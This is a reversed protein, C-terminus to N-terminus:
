NDAKLSTLSGFERFNALADDGTAYDNNKDFALNACLEFTSEMKKILEQTNM